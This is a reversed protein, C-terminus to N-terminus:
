YKSDIVVYNSKVFLSFSNFDRPFVRTDLKVDSSLLYLFAPRFVAVDPLIDLHREALPPPPPASCPFFALLKTSLSLSFSSPLTLM